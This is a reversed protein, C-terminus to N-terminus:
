AAMVMQADVEEMVRDVSPHTPPCGEDGAGFPRDPVGSGAVAHLRRNAAGWRAPDSAIFVTVSPAGTAIALHATGTDNTVVLAAREILAAATGLDTRGCLDTARRQMADEVAAVTPSEATTGTLVVHLGRAVLADGVAAFREPPWRRRPDSAGAHVVAYPRFGRDPLLAAATRRDGDGVPFAPAADGDTAGALAVLALWRDVESLADPFAPSDGADPCWLGRLHYGLQRRPALLATFVNTVSGSGHMQIALDFVPEARREGLWACLRAPDADAEVVGPFGPFELFRDVLHPYRAVVGAVQPLGVYSIRAHPYRARLRKLAPVACLVDGIGGLARVVCIHRPDPVATVTM